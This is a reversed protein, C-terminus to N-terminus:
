RHAPRRRRHRPRQRGVGSQTLLVSEAPDIDRAGVLVIRSCPVPRLPLEEPLTLIGVGAALAMDGLYGSPTTAETNFDGHADFWVIGVDCGSRQHWALIGLSTLCAGSVVLVPLDHGSVMRALEEYHGGM